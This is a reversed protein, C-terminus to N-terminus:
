AGAPSGAAAAPEGSPEQPEAPTEQAASLKKLYADVQPKGLKVTMYKIVNEMVNFAQEFEGVVAPDAAYVLLVYRGKKQKKLEFALIKVGWDEEKLLTGSKREIIGKLRSVSAKVSEDTESPHFIIVTEYHKTM